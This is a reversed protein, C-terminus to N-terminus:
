GKIAKVSFIACRKQCIEDISKGEDISICCMGYPADYTEKQVILTGSHAKYLFRGFVAFALLMGIIIGIVFFIITLM